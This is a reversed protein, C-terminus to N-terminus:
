ASVVVICAMLAVTAVVIRLVGPDRAKPLSMNKFCWKNSIPSCDGLVSFLMDIAVQETGVFPSTM